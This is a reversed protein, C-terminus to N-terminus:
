IKTLYEKVKEQLKLSLANAIDVWMAKTLLASLVMWEWMDKAIKEIKEKIKWEIDKWEDIKSQQKDILDQISKWYMDKMMEKETEYIKESDSVTFCLDFIDIAWFVRARDWELRWQYKVRIWRYFYQQWIVLEMNNITLFLNQGSQGFDEADSRLDLM